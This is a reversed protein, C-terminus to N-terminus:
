GKNNTRNHEYRQKILNILYPQRYEFEDPINLCIIPKTTLTKMIEFHQQTMCVIEDAWKLLADNIPILAYPRCGVARTNFNYPEQSLVVAATASRLIGGSCVCLVRKYSGQYPNHAIELASNTNYVLDVM